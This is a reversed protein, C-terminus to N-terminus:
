RRQITCQYIPSDTGGLDYKYPENGRLFDYRTMGQQIADRLAYAKLLLGVSLSSFQQDFGSNYLLRQNTYDFCLIAAARVGDVTLSFIKGVGKAVFTEVVNRFFGEKEPTMFAAKDERSMRMLRFFHDMEEALGETTATIRYQVDGASELRRFKRRLEHRDKKSLMGLYSEWDAPLEVRPCVDELEITTEYPSEPDQALQQLFAFTPSEGSISHLVLTSWALQGIHDFISSLAGTCHEGLLVFDLYDCVETSGALALTKNALQLPAVAVPGGGYEIQLYVAEKDAGFANWWLRHWTPTLFVTNTAATALLKKWTGKIESFSHQTVTYAM